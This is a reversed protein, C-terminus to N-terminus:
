RLIDNIGQIREVNITLAIRFCHTLLFVLSLKIEIDALWKISKLKRQHTIFGTQSITQNNYSTTCSYYCSKVLNSPIDSRTLTDCKICIIWMRQHTCFLFSPTCGECRLCWLSVKCLSIKYKHQQLTQCKRLNFIDRSWSYSIYSFKCPMMSSYPLILLM